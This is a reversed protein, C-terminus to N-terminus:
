PFYLFVSDFFEKFYLAFTKGVQGKMSSSVELFDVILKLLSKVKISPITSVLITLGLAFGQRACQFLFVICIVFTLWVLQM